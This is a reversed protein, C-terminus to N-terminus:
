CGFRERASWLKQLQCWQWNEGRGYMKRLRAKDWDRSLSRYRALLLWIERECDPAQTMSTVALGRRKWVKRESHRSCLEMEKETAVDEKVCSGAISTLITSCLDLLYTNWNRMVTLLHYAYGEAPSSQIGVVYRQWGAGPPSSSVMERSDRSLGEWAVWICASVSYLCIAGLILVEM